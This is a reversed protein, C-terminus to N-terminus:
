KRASVQLHYESYSSWKKELFLLSISQGTSEQIMRRAKKPTVNAKRRAEPVKGMRWSREFVISLQEAIAEALQRLVHPHMGRPCMSKCIDTKGLQDTVLDEM